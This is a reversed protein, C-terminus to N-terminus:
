HVPDPTLSQNKVRNSVYPRGYWITVFAAEAESSNETLSLCTVGYNGGEGIGGWPSLSLPTHTSCICPTGM